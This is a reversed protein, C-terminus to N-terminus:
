KENKIKNEESSAKLNHSMFQSLLNMSENTMWWPSYHIRFKTIKCWSSFAYHSGLSLINSAFKILSFSTLFWINAREHYIFGIAECIEREKTKILLLFFFYEQLIIFQVIEECAHEIKPFFGIPCSHCMLYFWLQNSINWCISKAKKERMLVKFSCPQRKCINKQKTNSIQCSNIIRYDIM